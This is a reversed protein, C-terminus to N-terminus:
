KKSYINLKPALYRCLQHDNVTFGKCIITNFDIQLKIFVAEYLNVLLLQFTAFM